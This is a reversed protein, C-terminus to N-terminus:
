SKRILKRRLFATFKNEIIWWSVWAVGFVLPLVACIVLIVGTVSFKDINYILRSFGQVVFSHTLYLSYSVDGLIVLPRPIRCNELGKFLLIFVAFAPIGYKIFRDVNDFLAIYEEAFLGAWILAAASICIARTAASPAYDPNENGKRVLFKYSLMGFAFELIIPRCYFNIFDSESNRFILGVATMAVLIATAIIHRSQHRIKASVFFVLYFLIEMVLTWGVQVLASVTSGSEGTHFYPIFFLSKVLYEPTLALTRFMSPMIILLTATAFTALWYLPVIRIARKIIFHETNKETVHMMIFGSICFFLEVGFAGNAVMQIHMFVVTLAALGRMFQINDYQKKM